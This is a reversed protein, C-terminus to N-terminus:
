KAKSRKEAIYDSIINGFDNIFSFMFYELAHKHKPIYAAEDSFQVGMLGYLAQIIKFLKARDASNNMTVFVETLRNITEIDGATSVWVMEAFPLTMAGAILNIKDKSIQDSPLLIGKNVLPNQM